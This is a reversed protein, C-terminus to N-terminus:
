GMVQGWGTFVHQGCEIGGCGVPQGSQGVSAVVAGADAHVCRDFLWGAGLAEVGVVAGVVCEQAPEAAEAFAAEGQECLPPAGQVADGGTGAFDAGDDLGGKLNGRKTPALYDLRRCLPPVEVEDASRFSGVRAGHEVTIGRSGRFAAESEDLAAPGTGDGM